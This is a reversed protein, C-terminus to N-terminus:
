RRMEKQAAELAALRKEVDTLEAARRYNELMDQLARGEAPTLAGRAVARVVAASAQALNEPRLPPLKVADAPLPGDKRPPVLRELCAKLMQENGSLAMDVARRVLEEAQGDLLGQCLLSVKNRSGAARGAPNGSQGKQFPRGPGRQKPTTKAAM